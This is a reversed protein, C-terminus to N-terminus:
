IKGQLKRIEGDILGPLEDTIFKRMQEVSIGPPATKKESVLLTKLHKAINLVFSELVDQNQKFEEIQIKLYDIEALLDNLKEDSSIDTEVSVITKAEKTRKSIEEQLEDKTHGLDKTWKDDFALSKITDILAKTKIRDEKLGTILADADAPVVVTSIEYLDQKTGILRPRGPIEWEEILEMYREEDKPYVAETQEYGVSFAKMFDDRYLSWIEEAFATKAFVGKFLLGINDTKRWAVRGVPPMDYWHSWPMVPNKDFRVFTWGTPLLVENFSDISKTNGYAVISREDENIEKKESVHGRRILNKNELSPDSNKSM